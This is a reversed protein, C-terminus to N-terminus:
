YGPYGRFIVKFEIYADHLYMVKFQISADRLYSGTLSWLGEMASHIHM